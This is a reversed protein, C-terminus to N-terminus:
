AGCERGTYDSVQLEEEGRIMLLSDTGWGSAEFVAPADLEHAPGIRHVRRDYAAVYDVMTEVPQYLDRLDDGAPVAIEDDSGRSVCYAIAVRGADGILRASHLRTGPGTRLLLDPTGLPRLDADFRRLLLEPGLAGLVYLEDGIVICDVSAAGRMGAVDVRREVVGDLVRAIEVRLEDGHHRLLTLMGGPMAARLSFTADGLDIVRRGDIPGDDVAGGDIRAEFLRGSPAHSFWLLRVEGGKSVFCPMAIEDDEQMLDNERMVTGGADLVLLRARGSGAAAGVLVIGDEWATAVAVSAVPLVTGEGVIGRGSEVPLHRIRGLSRDLALVHLRAGARASVIPRVMPYSVRGDVARPDLDCV